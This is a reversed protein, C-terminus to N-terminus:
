FWTYPYSSISTCICLEGVCVREWCINVSYIYIYIGCEFAVGGLIYVMEWDLGDFFSTVKLEEADGRGSGLRQEVKRQLLGQFSLATCTLVDVPLSLVM